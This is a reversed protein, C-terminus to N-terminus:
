GEVGGGSLRAVVDVTTRLANEVLRVAEDREEDTARLVALLNRTMGELEGLRAAMEAHEELAEDALDIMNDLDGYTSESKLASPCREEIYTALAHHAKGMAM